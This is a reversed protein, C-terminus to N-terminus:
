SGAVRACLHHCSHQARVRGELHGCEGPAGPVTRATGQPGPVPCGKPPYWPAGAPDPDEPHAGSHPCLSSSGGHCLSCKPNTDRLTQGGRSRPAQPGGKNHEPAPINCGSPSGWSRGPVGVGGEEDPRQPQQSDPSLARNESPATSGLARWTAQTGAPCSWARAPSRKLAGTRDQTGGAVEWTWAGHHERLCGGLSRVSLGAPQSLGM